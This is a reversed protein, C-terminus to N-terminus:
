APNRQKKARTNYLYRPLYDITTRMYSDVLTACGMKFALGSTALVLLDKSTVRNLFHLPFICGTLKNAL